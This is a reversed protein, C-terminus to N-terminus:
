KQNEPSLAPKTQTAAPSSATPTTSLLAFMSTSTFNSFTISITSASSSKRLGQKTEDDFRIYLAVVGGLASAQEHVQEQGSNESVMQKSLRRMRRGAERLMIVQMVLTLWTVRGWVSVDACCKRNDRLGKFYVKKKEEPDSTGTQGSREMEVFRRVEEELEEQSRFKTVKEVNRKTIESHPQGILRDRALTQATLAFRM